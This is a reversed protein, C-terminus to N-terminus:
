PEDLAPTPAAPSTTNRHADTPLYAQAEQATIHRAELKMTSEIDVIALCSPSGDSALGPVFLPTQGIISSVVMGRYNIRFNDAKDCKEDIDFRARELSTLWLGYSESAAVEDVVPVQTTPNPGLLSLNPRDIPLQVSWGHDLGATVTAGTPSNASKHIRLLTDLYRKGLGTRRSLEDSIQSSALLPEIVPLSLAERTLELRDMANDARRNNPTNSNRNAVQPTNTSDVRQWQAQGLMRAFDNEKMSAWRYLAPFAYAPTLKTLPARRSVLVRGGTARNNIVEPEIELLIPTNENLLRPDFYQYPQNEVFLALLKLHGWLLHRLREVRQVDSNLVAQQLERVQPDSEFWAIGHEKPTAPEDPNIFADYIVADAQYILPDPMDPPVDLDIVVSRGQTSLLLCAIAEEEYAAMLPISILQRDQTIFSRVQQRIAEQNSFDNVEWQRMEDTYGLSQFYYTVRVKRGPMNLDDVKLMVSLDLPECFRMIRALVPPMEEMPEFCTSDETAKIQWDYQTRVHYYRTDAGALGAALTATLVVAWVAVRTFGACTGNNM